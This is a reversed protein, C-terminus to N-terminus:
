SFFNQSVSFFLYFKESYNWNVIALSLAHICMQFKWYIDRQRSIFSFIFLVAQDTRPMGEATGKWRDYIEDDSFSLM